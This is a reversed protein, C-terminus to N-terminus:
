GAQLLTNYNLSKMFRENDSILEQMLSEIDIEFFRAIESLIEIILKWIKEAVTLEVTEAKTNRFLEGLSEYGSFRKALSLLNYQIM